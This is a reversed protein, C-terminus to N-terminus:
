KLKFALHKYSKIYKNLLPKKKIVINKIDENFIKKIKNTLKPIIPEMYFLLILFINIVTTCVEHGNKYTNKDKCLNWPKTKEMYINIKEAYSIIITIIKNFNRIKQLKKIKKYIKIYQFFLNKSTLRKSLKNKYYKSIINISRSIINIFKGILDSNIKYVLENKNFDIDNVKNNIKSALYFRLYDSRIKKIIDEANIFTNKSKSMKVNNITIFGHVFIKKPKKFKIADLMAIWFLSHFNIIDKGIIHKINFINKRLFFLFNINNKIFFNQISSIYGIPADMWVYFYKKNESPIKIGFYPKNRSINWKKLNDKFWEDIKNFIEKQHINKKCWNKIKKQMKNILFFYHYTKKKIPKTNTLKSLPNILDIAEYNFNCTDCIDGYQDKSKCKPCTGIIYRDPLFIKLNKDYLQNKAKIKILKKQYIKNFFKKANIENEYSNTKYFNEYNINFNKLDYKYKNLFNTIIKEPNKKEKHAKLMIPTGHSDIGSFFMTFIKNQNEYRKLIDTQLFELIHGLHLNGNPYPLAATILNYKKM